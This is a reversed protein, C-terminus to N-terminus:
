LILEAAAAVPDLRKYYQYSLEITEIFVKGNQADLSDFKWSVPWANIFNWAQLPLHSGNLLIVIVDVPKARFSELQEAFWQIGASGILMGRKLSLNSYSPIGMLKHKFRNEGGEQYEETGFTIDMGSVEQFSIDPIGPYLVMDPPFGPQFFVIFHLGLPPTFLQGM